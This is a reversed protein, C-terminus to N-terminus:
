KTQSCMPEAKNFFFFFFRWICLCMAYICMGPLDSGELEKLDEKSWFMPTYFKKPLVDPMARILKIMIYAEKAQEVICTLKKNVISVSILNGSHITESAKM